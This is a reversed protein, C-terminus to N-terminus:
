RRVTGYRPSARGPRAAEFHAKIKAVEASSYLRVRLRGVKVMVPKAIVGERELQQIRSKDRKVARAVEAMTFHDKMHDPKWRSFDDTSGVVNVILIAGESRTSSSIVM